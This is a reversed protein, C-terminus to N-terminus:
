KVEKIKESIKKAIHKISNIDYHYPSRGLRHQDDGVVEEWDIELLKARYPRMQHKIGLHIGKQFRHVDYWSNVDFHKGNVVKNKFIHTFNGAVPIDQYYGIKKNIWRRAPPTYVLQIRDEFLGTVLEAFHRGWEGQMNWNEKQNWFGRFVLDDDYTCVNRKDNLIDLINEPFKLKTLESASKEKILQKILTVHEKNYQCRAESERTFSAILYNDKKNTKPVIDFYDKSVIEKYIRRGFPYKKADSKNYWKDVADAIYGIPSFLSGITTTDLKQFTHQPYKKILIPITDELECGGWLFFNM